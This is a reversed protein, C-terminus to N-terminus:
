TFTMEFAEFNEFATTLEKAVEEFREPPVFPFAINIHPPWRQFAPDYKERIAQVEEINETAVIALATYTVLNKEPDM